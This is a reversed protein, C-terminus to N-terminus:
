KMLALPLFFLCDSIACHSNFTLFHLYHSYEFSYCFYWGINQPMLPRTMVKWKYLVRKKGKSTLYMNGFISLKLKLCTTWKKMFTHVPPLLSLLNTRQIVTVFTAIGISIITSLCLPLVTCMSPVWVTHLHFLMIPLRLLLQTWNNSQLTLLNNAMCVLGTISYFKMCCHVIVVHM